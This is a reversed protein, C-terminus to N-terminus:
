ALAAIERRVRALHKGRRQAGGGSIRGLNLWRRRRVGLQRFTSGLLVSGIPNGCAARLYWTPSTSTTLVTVSRIWTGLVGRTGTATPEYAWKQKMVKDIFGKLIAPIDNWWVPAILVLADARELLRQYREVLPDRTGGEHFLALESEDYAPAFGDACLDIVETERGADAAGATAAELVARSFSGPYPHAYVIVTLPTPPASTQGTM